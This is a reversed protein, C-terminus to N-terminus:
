FYKLLNSFIEGLPDALQPGLITAVMGAGMLAMKDDLRYTEFYIM